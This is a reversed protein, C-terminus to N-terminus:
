KKNKNLLKSSEYTGDKGFIKGSRDTRGQYSGDKGYSRGDSDTRGQYTGDKGYKKGSSDERGQYSGDKGYYKEEAFSFESIFFIFSFVITIIKM